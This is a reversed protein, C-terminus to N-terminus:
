YNGLIRFKDSEERLGLIANKVSAENLNGKFDIFFRYQWNKGPIPRSEIQCLDLGNFIFHSLMHYLSGKENPIEFCISVKTADSKYLKTPAVIIFRTENSSNDQIAEDLISLGYIEANLSSGIAAKHIDNDDHVTKAAVATNVSNITTWDKHKKHIYGDCQMLAQPHSTVTNIDSITSGIVGLLAHNIKLVQEGMISMDYEMLLDYNEDISGASSNEIPLVAYDAEGSKIAEMAARWSPVNFTNKPVDGFFEKLALQSYAGEVGQFCVTKDSFDYSDICTYDLDSLLGHAAMIQYQRKRSTSMIQEYLEYIGQRNFDNSAMSSLTDLKAVERTKDYVKKGNAIKYEAVEEALELRHEYLSLIQKDVSDIEVRIEDLNKM